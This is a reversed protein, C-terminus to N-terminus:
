QRCKEWADAAWKRLKFVYGLFFKGMENESAAILMVRSGDPALQAHVEGHDDVIPPIAEPGALVSLKQHEPPSAALCPVPVVVRKEVVRPACAAWLLAVLVSLRTRRLEHKQWLERVSKSAKKTDLFGGHLECLAFRSGLAEGRRVTRRGCVDCPLHASPMNAEGKDVDLSWVVRELLACM